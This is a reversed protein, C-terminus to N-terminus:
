EIKKLAVFDLCSRLVIAKLNSIFLFRALLESFRVGSEASFDYQHFSGAGSLEFGNSVIFSFQIYPDSSILEQLRKLLLFSRFM